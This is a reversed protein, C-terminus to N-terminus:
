SIFRMKWFYNIIIFWIMSRVFENEMLNLIFYLGLKIIAGRARNQLHRIKKGPVGKLLKITAVFNGQFFRKYVREGEYSTVGLPFVRVSVYENCVEFTVDISSVRKGILELEDYEKVEVVYEDDDVCKEKDIVVCNSVGGIIDSDDSAMGNGKDVDVAEAISHDLTSLLFSTDDVFVLM